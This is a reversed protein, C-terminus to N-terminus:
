RDKTDTFRGYARLREYRQQLLAAPKLGATHRLADGLARKLQAAMWPVDRHAGGVPENVIKDIVGLAKYLITQRPGRQLEVGDWLLAMADAPELPLLRRLLWAERGQDLVEGLEPEVVWAAEGEHALVGYLGAGDGTTGGLQDAFM